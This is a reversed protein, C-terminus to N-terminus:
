FSKRPTLLQFLFFSHDSQAEKIPDVIAVAGQHAAGGLHGLFQPGDGGGKGKVGVGLRHNQAPGHRQEGGGLVPRIQHALVVTDLVDNHLGKGDGPHLLGPLVKHGAGQHLVKVGHVQHGAVVIVKAVLPLAVGLAELLDALLQADATVNDGLHLHLPDRNGGGVDTGQHGLPLHLPGVLKQAM